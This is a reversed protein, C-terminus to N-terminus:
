PAVRIDGRDDKFVTGSDVKRLLADMEEKSNVVLSGDEVWQQEATLGGVDEEPKGDEISISQNIAKVDKLLVSQSIVDWTPIQYSQDGTNVTYIGANKGVGMTWKAGQTESDPPTTGNIWHYWLTSPLRVLSNGPLRWKGQVSKGFLKEFTGKRATIINQATLQGTRQKSLTQFIDLSLEAMNAEPSGEGHEKLAQDWAKKLSLTKLHNKEPSTRESSGFHGSLHEAEKQSAKARRARNYADQKSLPPSYKGDADFFVVQSLNELREQGDFKDFAELKALAMKVFFGANSESGTINAIVNLIMAKTFIDNLADLYRKRKQAINRPFTERPSWSTDEAAQQLAAPNGDSAQEDADALVAVEQGTLNDAGTQTKIEEAVNLKKQETIQAELDVDPLVVDSIPALVEGTVDQRAQQSAARDAEQDIMGEAYNQFPGTGGTQTPTSPAFLTDYLNQGFSTPPATPYSSFDDVAQAAGEPDDARAISRGSRAADALLGEVALESLGQRSSYNPGQPWADMGAADPMREDVLSAAEAAGEEELLPASDKEAQEAEFSAAIQEDTWNAPVRVEAQVYPNWVWKWEIPDDGVGPTGKPIPGQNLLSREASPVDAAQASPILTEGLNRLAANLMHDVKSTDASANLLAVPDTGSAMEAIWDTHGGADGEADVRESVWDTWDPGGRVNTGLLGQPAAERMQHQRLVAAAEERKKKQLALFELYSRAQQTPMGQMSGPPASPRFAVGGGLATPTDVMGYRRYPYPDAM